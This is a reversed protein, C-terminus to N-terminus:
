GRSTGKLLFRKFIAFSKIIRKIESPRLIMQSLRYLIYRPRLYFARRADDCFRVLDDNTVDNTSVVCNHLGECTLWEDFKESLLFDNDRAWDYAETGPYVMIPFFQATDLRLETAFRLTTQLSERTEGPNGVMFCGHILLGAKKADECFQRARTVKLDKKMSDLVDQDGSELGVCLLRCGAQRMLKLTKYDVDARSNATWSLGIRLDILLQSFERVRKRDVTFTDDEIFVERVEPLEEVIFRIEDMINAISRKRYRRGHMVQPYLCYVCRHPCGRGTYISVMPHKTITYFYDSINLHKKFVASVFPLSDLDKVLSRDPNAVVEGNSRYSIGEVQDLAPNDRSMQLQRALDLVTYDYENRAVAEIRPDIDLTETPLASPHSGVLLIFAGTAEKITRAVEVDHYISPTSTDVVVLSPSFEKVKSVVDHLRYRRAPADILKAEFGNQELIGTAYALWTPYYFTGGKTIAPSRQSRSFRGFESLFPPNLLAVRM